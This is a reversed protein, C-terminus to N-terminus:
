SAPVLSSGCSRDFKEVAWDESDNDGLKYTKTPELLRVSRGNSLQANVSFSVNWQDKATDQNVWVELNRCQDYPIPSDLSIAKTRDTQEGWEINRGTGNAITGVQRGNLRVITKVITKPEKRNSKTSYTITMSTITVPQVPTPSPTPTPTPTIEPAPTITIEPTPSSDPSREPTPTLSPEPTSDNIASLMVSFFNNNVNGMCPFDYTIDSWETTNKTEKNAEQVILNLLERSYVQGRLNSLNLNNDDDTFIFGDFKLGKAKEDSLCVEDISVINSSISSNTNFLKINSDPTNNTATNNSATDSNVNSNQNPPPKEPEPTLSPSPDPVSKKAKPFVNEVLSSFRTESLINSKDAFKDSISLNTFVALTLISIIAPIILLSKRTLKNLPNGNKYLLNKFFVLANYLYNQFPNAQKKKDSRYKKLRQIYRASFKRRALFDTFVTERLVSTNNEIKILDYLFRRWILDEFKESLSKEAPNEHELDFGAAPHKLYNILLREVLERLRKQEDDPLDDFILRRFWDPMKSHRFWPLRVLLALKEERNERKILHRSLYFTIDWLTEPYVTCAALLLYGDEDLYEKLNFKLRETEDPEVEEIWQWEDVTLLQPYNDPITEELDDADFKSTDEDSEANRISELLHDLDEDDFRLIPIGAKRVIFEAHNISPATSLLLRVKWNKVISELVKSPRKTAPEIFNKPEGFILLRHEPYFSFLKSFDSIRKPGHSNDAAAQCFSPNEDFYFQDVFVGASKVRRVWEDILDAQQDPFERRDTLILYEPSIRKQSYVPTFFGARVVSADVTARTDLFTGPLQRHRRLEQAFRRIEPSEYLEGDYKNAHPRKFDLYKKNEDKNLWRKIRARRWKWWALWVSWVFLPFLFLVALLVLYFIYFTQPKQPSESIPPPAPTPTVTVSSPTPTPNYNNVFQSVTPVVYYALVAFLLITLSIIVWPQKVYKFIIQFREKWRIEPIPRINTEPAILNISLNSQSANETFEEETQRQPQSSIWREFARNFKDKEEPTTTFLPALFPRLQAFNRISGDASLKLLLQEANIYQEPSIRFQKDNLGYIFDLLYEYQKGTTDSLDILKEANDTM